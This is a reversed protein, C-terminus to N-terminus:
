VTCYLRLRVGMTASRSQPSASQRPFTLRWSAPSFVLQETQQLARTTTSMTQRQLVLSQSQRGQRQSSQTSTAAGSVRGLSAGPGTSRVTDCSSAGGRLWRWELPDILGMSPVGDGLFRMTDRSAPAEGERGACLVSLGCWTATTSVGSCLMKRCCFGASVAASSVGSCLMKRWCFRASVAATVQVQSPTGVLYWFREPLTSGQWAAPAFSLPHLFLKANMGFGPSLAVPGTIPKNHVRHLTM